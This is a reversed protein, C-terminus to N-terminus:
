PFNSNGVLTDYQWDLFAEFAKLELPSPFAGKLFIDYTKMMQQGTLIALDYGVQHHSGVLEVLRMPRGDQIEPSNIEYLTSHGAKALSKCGSVSGIQFGATDPIPEASLATLLLLLCVWRCM